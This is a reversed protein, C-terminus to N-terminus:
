KLPWMILPKLFYKGSKEPDNEFDNRKKGGGPIGEKLVYNISQDFISITDSTNAPSVIQHFLGNACAKPKVLPNNFLCIFTSDLPTSSILASIFVITSLDINIELSLFLSHNPV